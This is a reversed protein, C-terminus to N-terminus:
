DRGHGPDRVPTFSKVVEAVIAELLGNTMEARRDGLAREVAERVQQEMSM